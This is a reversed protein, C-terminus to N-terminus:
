GINKAIRILEDESLYGSLIFLYDGDSWFLVDNEGDIHDFYTGTYNNIKVEKVACNENDIKNETDTIIKQTYTLVVNGDESFGVYYQMPIDIYIEKQYKEVGLTPEYKMEIFTPADLENEKVFHIAIYDEYMKTISQIFAQRIDPISMGIMSILSMVILCAVAVRKFYQKLSRKKDTVKGRKLIRKIKQEYKPSFSVDSVDLKDFEDLETKVINDVAVGIILDFVYKKNVM